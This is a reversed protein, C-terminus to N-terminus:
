HGPKKRVLFKDKVFDEARIRVVHRRPLSQIQKGAPFLLQAAPLDFFICFNKIKKRTVNGFVCFFDCYIYTFLILVIGSKVLERKAKRKPKIM